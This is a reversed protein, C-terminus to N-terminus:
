LLSYADPLVPPPDFRRPQTLHPKPWQGRTDIYTTPIPHRQASQTSRSHRLKRVSGSPRLVSM